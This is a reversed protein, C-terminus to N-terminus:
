RGGVEKGILAPVAVQPAAGLILEVNLRTRGDSGRSFADSTGRLAATLQDYARPFSALSLVSPTALDLALRIISTLPVANTSLMNGIPLVVGKSLKLVAENANKLRVPDDAYGSSDLAGTVVGIMPAISTQVADVFETTDVLFKRLPIKQDRAISSVVPFLEKILRVYPESDNTLKLVANVVDPDGLSGTLKGARNLVSTLTGFSMDTRVGLTQGSKLAKGRTVGHVFEIDTSTFMSSATYVPVVDTTLARAQTPDLQLDVYQKGDTRVEVSGVTGIRLGRYRVDTGSQLGDGVKDSTLTLTFREDFGGTTWRGIFYGAVIVVVLVVAGLQAL